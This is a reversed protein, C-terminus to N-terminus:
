SPQLGERVSELERRVAINSALLDIVRYRDIQGKRHSSTQHFAIIHLVIALLLILTTGVLTQNAKNIVYVNIENGQLNFIIM